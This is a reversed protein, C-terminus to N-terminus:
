DDISPLFNKLLGPDGDGVRPVWPVAAAFEQYSCCYLFGKPISSQFGFFWRAEACRDPCISAEASPDGQFHPNNLGVFVVADDSAPDYVAKWFFEPVPIYPKKGKSLYIKTMRGADNKMALQGLTGTFVQLRSGASRAYDRVAAEVAVWNGGNFSQWQPAANLFYYTADQWEKYIFDADPALHGRSFFFQARRDFVRAGEGGGLWSKLTAEQTKLKYSTSASSHGFFGRGEKFNPRGPDTNRAAIAEGYVTHNEYHTHEADRVHCVSIQPRFVDADQWGIHVMEGRNDDPGCAEVAESKKIAEKISKSCSIDEFNVAGEGNGVRFKKDVSELCQVPSSIADTPKLKAGPCLAVIEGSSSGALSLIRRVDRGGGVKEPSPLLFEGTARSVFLPLYRPAARDLDISCNPNTHAHASDVIVDGGTIREQDPASSSSGREFDRLCAFSGHLLHLSLLVELVLFRPLLMQVLIM